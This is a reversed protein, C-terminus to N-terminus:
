SWRPVPRVVPGVPANEVRISAASASTFGESSSDEGKGTKRAMAAPQAGTHSPALTREAGALTRDDPECHGGLQAWFGGKRHLTLLVRESEPWFGLRDFAEMIGAVDVWDLSAARGHGVPGLGGDRHADDQRECSEYCPPDRRHDQRPNRVRQEGCGTDTREPRDHQDHRFVHAVIRM